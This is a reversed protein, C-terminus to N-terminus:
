VFRGKNDKERNKYNEKAHLKGHESFTMLELNEINNNLKNRDKHHVCENRYIRRGILEEMKVVHIHRGKNEGMTFEYYGNSNTRFGKGVGKKAKSINDKWLKTFVIKRGKNTSLKGQTGALIISDKRSRLIGLKKLRFYITSRPISLKNSIDPISFGSTYLEIYNM